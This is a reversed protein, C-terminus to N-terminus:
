EDEAGETSGGAAVAGLDGSKASAPGAQEPWAKAAKAPARGIM